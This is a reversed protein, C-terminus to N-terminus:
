HILNQRFAKSITEIRTSTGLKEGMKQLHYRITREAKNLVQAIEKDTKGSAALNLIYLERHTLEVDKQSIILQSTLHPSFWKQGRAVTNIADILM